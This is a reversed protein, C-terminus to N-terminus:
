PPFSPIKHRPSLHALRVHAMGPFQPEIRIPQKADPLDDLRVGGLTKIVARNEDDGAVAFDDQM